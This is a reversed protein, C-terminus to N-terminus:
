RNLSRVVAITEVTSRHGGEDEVVFSLPVKDGVKLPHTVDILMVHYGGAPALHVAKGAPLEVADVAQMHMVGGKMASSHIEVAKAAPSKVAVLKAEESSKVTAFAGTSKQAPVMERVWADEITVKAQAAFSVTLTICAFLTSLASPRRDLASTRRHMPSMTLTSCNDIHMPEGNEITNM